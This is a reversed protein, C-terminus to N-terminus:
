LGALNVVIQRPFHRDATAYFSLQLVGLRQEVANQVGHGGAQECQIHVVANHLAVLLGSVPQAHIVM